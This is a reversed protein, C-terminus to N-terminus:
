KRSLRYAILDGAAKLGVMLVLAIVPAGFKMALAGGGLLVVHLFFMRGLAAGAADERADGPRPRIVELYFELGRIVLLALAAACLADMPLTGLLEGTDPQRGFKARYAHVGFVGLVVMGHFLTFMGYFCSFFFANWLRAGLTEPKGSEDRSEQAVLIQLVAYFGIVVNELWFILFAVVLDWGLFLVGCLPLLNAAVLALATGLRAKPVAAASAVPEGMRDIM